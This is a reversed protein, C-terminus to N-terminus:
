KLRYVYGSLPIKIFHAVLFAVFILGWVGLAPLWTDMQNLSLAAEIAQSPDRAARRLAAEGPVMRNFVDLNAGLISGWNFLVNKKRIGVYGLM